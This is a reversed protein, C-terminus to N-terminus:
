NAPLTNVLFKDVFFKFAAWFATNIQSTDRNLFEPQNKKKNIIM